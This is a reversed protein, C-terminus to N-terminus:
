EHSNRRSECATKWGIAAAKSAFTPATTHEGTTRLRHEIAAPTLYLTGLEDKEFQRLRVRVRDGWWQLYFATERGDCIPFIMDTKRQRVIRHWNRTDISSPSLSFGPHSHWEGIWDVKGGSKRWRRLAAFRHGLPSRQFRASSQRDWALPRTVETVHLYPGKRLGLVLGGAELPRHQRTCELM